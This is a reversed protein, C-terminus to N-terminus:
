RLPNPLPAYRLGVIKQGEPSQIWGIFERFEAEPEREGIVFITSRLPYTNDYVSNITPMVGDVALVKVSSNVYSISVYGISGSQNAVSVVMADSSPAVQASLTTLRQGLLLKEFEDRTGSGSERSVVIIDEEAGGLNDWQPVHGLYINRLQESSINEITNQPHTIIAIGDQGIPWAMMPRENPLHTTLVYADVDPQLQGIITELNGTLTEFHVSPNIENYYSTLDNLLPIAPTSAYLRLTVADRTPTTAPTVPSSCSVLALTVIALTRKPQWM